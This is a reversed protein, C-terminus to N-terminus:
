QETFSSSVIMAGGKMILTAAEPVVLVKYGLQTLDQTIAAMATTKGACPGGTLLIRTINVRDDSLMRQRRPRSIESTNQSRLLSSSIQDTLLYDVVCFLNSYFLFCELFTSLSLFPFYFWVKLKYAKDTSLQSTKMPSSNSSRVTQNQKTGALSKLFNFCSSRM